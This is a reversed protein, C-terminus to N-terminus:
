QLYYIDHMGSSHVTLNNSFCLPVEGVCPKHVYKCILKNTQKNTLPTERPSHIDWRSLPTVRPQVVNALGHFPPCFLNLESTSEGRWADIDM